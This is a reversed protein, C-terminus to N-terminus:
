NRRGTGGTPIAAYMWGRNPDHYAEWDWISEQNYKRAVAIAEEKSKFCWSIEPSVLGEETTFRGAYVKGDSKGNMMKVLEAYEEDSYNDGIQYFTVQYGTKLGDTEDKLTSINYTGDKYKDSKLEAIAKKHDMQLSQNNLSQAERENDAIQKDKPDYRVRDADAKSCFRGNKTWPNGINRSM